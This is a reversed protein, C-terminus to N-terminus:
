QKGLYLGGKQLHSRCRPVFYFVRCKAANFCMKHSQAWSVLLDLDSQLVARDEDWEAFTPLARNMIYMAIWMTM